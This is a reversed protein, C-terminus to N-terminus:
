FTLFLVGVECRRITFKLVRAPQMVPTSITGAETETEASSTTKSNAVDAEVSTNQQSLACYFSIIHSELALWYNFQQLAVLYYSRLDAEMKSQQRATAQQRHLSNSASVAERQQRHHRGQQHQQPQHFRQHSRLSGTASQVNSSGNEAALACSEKLSRYSQLRSYSQKMLHHFAAWVTYGSSRLRGLLHIRLKSLLEFQAMFSGLELCLSLLKGHQNLENVITMVQEINNEHVILHDKLTQVFALSELPLERHPSTSSERGDIPRLALYDEIANLHEHASM